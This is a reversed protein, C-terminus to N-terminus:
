SYFHGVGTHLNIFRNAGDRYLDKYLISPIIMNIAKLYKNIDVFILYNCFLDFTRKIYILPRPKYIYKFDKYSYHINFAIVRAINSHM